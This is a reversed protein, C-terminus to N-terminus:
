IASNLLAPKAFLKVLPSDEDALLVDGKCTIVQKYYMCVFGEM